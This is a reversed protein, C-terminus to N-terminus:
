VKSIALFDFIPLRIPKCCVPTWGATVLYGGPNDVSLLL